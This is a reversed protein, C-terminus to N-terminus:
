ESSTVLAMVDDPSLYLRRIKNKYWSPLEAHDLVFNKTALIYNLLGRKVAYTDAVREAKRIYKKSFVYGAGFRAMGLRGRYLYDMVHGLEHGIWGILVDKPLDEIKMHTKSLHFYRSIRIIYHRRHKKRFLTRAKPQAQMISSRINEVYVFDIQTDKLEPFYSLAILIEERLEDPILKKHTLSEWDISQSHSLHKTPELM